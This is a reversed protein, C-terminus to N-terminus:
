RTRVCLQLLLIPVGACVIGLGLIINLAIGILSMYAERDVAEPFITDRESSTRTWNQFAVVGSAVAIALALTTVIFLMVRAAEAAQPTTGGYGTRCYHTAIFVCLMGQLGWAVAGACTGFWLRSPVLHNTPPISINSTAM